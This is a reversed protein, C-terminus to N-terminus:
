LRCQLFIAKRILDDTRETCLIFLQHHPFDAADTCWRVPCLLFFLCRSKKATLFCSHPAYLCGTKTQHGPLPLVASKSHSIWLMEPAIEAGLITCRKIILGPFLIACSVPFKCPFPTNQFWAWFGPFVQQM